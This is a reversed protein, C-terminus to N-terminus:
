TLFGSHFRTGQILQFGPLARRSCGRQVRCARSCPRAQTLQGAGVLLHGAAALIWPQGEELCFLPGPSRRQSGEGPTMRQQLGSPAPATEPLSLAARFANFIWSVESNRETLVPNDSGALVHRNSAPVERAALVATFVTGAGALVLLVIITKM